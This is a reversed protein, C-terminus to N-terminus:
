RCVRRGGSVASPWSKARWVGRGPKPKVEWITNLADQLQVFVGMAGFLLTIVALASAILGERPKQAAELMGGIAKAGQPGVLGALQGFIQEHAQQQGFWMGAIAIVIIVLPAISFVAYYALAAGLRPARDGLWDNVTEKLVGFTTKFGERM